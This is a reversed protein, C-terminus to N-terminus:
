NRDGQSKGVEGAMGEGIESAPSHNERCGVVQLADLLCQIVAADVVEKKGWKCSLKADTLGDKCKKKKGQLGNQHWLGLNGPVPPLCSIIWLAPM